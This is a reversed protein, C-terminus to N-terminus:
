VKCKREVKDNLPDTGSHGMDAVVDDISSKLLKSSFKGKLNGRWDISFPSKNKFLTKILKQYTDICPQVDMELRGLM